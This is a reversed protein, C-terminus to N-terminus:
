SLYKYVYKGIIDAPIKKTRSKNTSYIYTGISFITSLCKIRGGRSIICATKLPPGLM